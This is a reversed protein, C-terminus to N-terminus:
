TAAGAGLLYVVTFLAVWIIDLAHWFLMFCAIRRDIDERFGKTWVQAMMTTLWALGLAVHVGHCGLDAGWLSEVPLRVDAIEDVHGDLM